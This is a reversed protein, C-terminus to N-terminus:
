SENWSSSSEEISIRLENLENRSCEWARWFNYVRERNENELASWTQKKDIGEIKYKILKESRRLKKEEKEFHCNMKKRKRKM